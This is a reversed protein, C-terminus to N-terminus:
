GCPPMDESYFPTSAQQQFNVKNKQLYREALHRSFLIYNNERENLTIWVKITIIKSKKRVCAKEERVFNKREQMKLKSTDM